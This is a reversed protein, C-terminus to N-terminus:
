RITEEVLPQLNEYTYGRSLGWKILKLKGYPDDRLTRWKSELLKRLRDSAKQPDTEDLAATITQEDIGKMRLAHRIKIEGWGSIGSKDRAFAGAYRLDNVFGDDLLSRVLEEAEQRDELKSLAKRLIDSSCYERRACQAQFSGLLIKTKDQM